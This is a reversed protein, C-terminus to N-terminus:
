NTSDTILVSYLKIIFIIYSVWGSLTLFSFEKLNQLSYVMPPCDTFTMLYCLFKKFDFDKNYPQPSCQISYFINYVTDSIKHM